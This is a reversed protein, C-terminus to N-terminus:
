SIWVKGDVEISADGAALDLQGSVWQEGNVLVMEPQPARLAVVLMAAAALAGAGLLAPRWPLARRVRQEGAAGRLAAAPLAPPPLADPLEALADMASCLREWRAAVEPEAEIRAKLARAEDSSLEGGWLM